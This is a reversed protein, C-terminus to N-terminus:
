RRPPITWDAIYVDTTLSTKKVSDAKIGVIIGFFDEHVTSFIDKMEM